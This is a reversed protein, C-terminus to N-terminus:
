GPNTVLKFGDSLDDAWKVHLNGRNGHQIGKREHRVINGFEAAHLPQENFIPLNRLSVVGEGSWRLTRCSVVEVGEGSRREAVQPSLGM